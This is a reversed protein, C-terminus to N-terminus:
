SQRLLATTYASVGSDPTGPLQTLTTQLLSLDFVGPMPTTPAPAAGNGSDRHYMLASRGRAQHGKMDNERRVSSSVPPLRLQEAERYTSVVFGRRVRTGPATIDNKM